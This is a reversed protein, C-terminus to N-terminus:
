IKDIIIKCVGGIHACELATHISKLREDGSITWVIVIWHSRDKMNVASPDTHDLPLSERIVSGLYAVMYIIGFKCLDNGM